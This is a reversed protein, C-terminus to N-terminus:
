VTKAAMKILKKFNNKFILISSYLHKVIQTGATNCLSDAIPICIDVRNQIAKGNVDGCLNLLTGEAIYYTRMVQGDVLIDVVTSM